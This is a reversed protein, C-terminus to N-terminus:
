LGIAFHCGATAMEGKWPQMSCVEPKGSKYTHLRIRWLLFSLKRFFSKYFFLLPLFNVLTDNMFKLVFLITFIFPGSPVLFDM